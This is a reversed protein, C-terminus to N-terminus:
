VHRLRQEAIFAQGGACTPETGLIAIVDRLTYLSHILHLSSCHCSHVELDNYFFHNDAMSLILDEM